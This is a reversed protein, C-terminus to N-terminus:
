KINEYLFETFKIAWKSFPQINKRDFLDTLLISAEDWNKVKNLNNIFEAFEIENNDFINKIVKKRLSKPMLGDLNRDFTKSEIKEVPKTLKEFLSKPKEEIIETQNSESIKLDTKSVTEKSVVSTSTEQIVVDKEDTSNEEVIEEANTSEDTKDFSEVIEVEQKFIKEDVKSIHTLSQLYNPLNTGISKFHEKHEELFEVFRLQNKDKLYVIFAEYEPLDTIYLNLELLYSKFNNFLQYHELLTFDRTYENEIKHLLDIFNNRNIRTIKKKELYVKILIPFYEYNKIYKLRELITSTFQTEEYKFIFSTLTECPRILYDLSLDLALKFLLSLEDHNLKRTLRLLIKLEDILPKVRINDYDFKSFKKIENFENNLQNDIECNIFHLIQQPINLNNLESISISEREHFIAKCYRNIVIQKERDFM